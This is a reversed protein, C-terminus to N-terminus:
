DFIFHDIRQRTGHLAAVLRQLPAAESPKLYVDNFWGSLRAAEQAIWSGTVGVIITHAGWPQERIRRCTEIGNTQPMCLDLVVVQPKLREATEIGETASYAATTQCLRGELLCRLADANDRVDDVVLIRLM